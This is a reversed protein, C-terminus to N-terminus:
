SKPNFSSFTWYNKFANKIFQKFQYTDKIVSKLTVYFELFRKLFTFSVAKIKQYM